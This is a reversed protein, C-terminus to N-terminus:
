SSGGHPSLSELQTGARMIWQFARTRPAGDMAKPVELSPAGVARRAAQAESGEARVLELKFCRGLIFYKEGLLRQEGAM